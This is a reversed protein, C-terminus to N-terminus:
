AVVTLEPVQVHSVPSASRGNSWFGDGFYNQNRLAYLEQKIEAMAQRAGGATLEETVSSRPVPRLSVRQFDPGHNMHENHALEHCMVHLIYM